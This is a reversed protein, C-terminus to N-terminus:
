LYWTADQSLCINVTDGPQKGQQGTRVMIHMGDLSLEWEYYSGFFNIKDLLFPVGEADTIRFQEPRVLLQQNDRGPLVSFLRAQEHTLLQYNGCLGATYTDVPKRYINEATDQQRISGEKMVVIHDAWSLIDAPDHSVLILSTDLEESIDSIVSRLLIRHGQDLNSYPEDLLLLRPSSMLLLALAIRQREGGSVQGNKRKLLHGIRTLDIIKKIEAPPVRSSYSFMEEVRYNNRLEFHQSLYGIAPHGPILKEEPGALKEEEFWVTGLDPQVLGAIIKLLTTKGSGTEGALALKQRHHQIFHVDKLVWDTNHKKSIGSVQLLRMGAMENFWYKGPAGPQRFYVIWNLQSSALKNQTDPIIL